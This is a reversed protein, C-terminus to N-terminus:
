GGKVRYSWLQATLTISIPFLCSLGVLWRIPSCISRLSVMARSCSGVNQDLFPNVLIICPMKIESATAIEYAGKKTDSQRYGDFNGSSMALNVADLIHGIPRHYSQVFQSCLLLFFILSLVM